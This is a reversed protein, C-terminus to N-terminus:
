CSLMLITSGDIATQELVVKKGGPLKVDGWTEEHGDIALFEGSGSQGARGPQVM